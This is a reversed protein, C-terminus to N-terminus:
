GTPDSWEERGVIRDVSCQLADALAILHRISPEREGYMWGELRRQSVGIQGSLQKASIKQEAMIEKLNMYGKREVANQPISNGGM